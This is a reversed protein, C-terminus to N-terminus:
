RMQPTQLNESAQPPAQSPESKQSNNQNKIFGHQIDNHNYGIVIAATAIVSILWSIINSSIATYWKTRSTIHSRLESAHMNIKDNISSINYSISEEIIQPRAEIIASAAFEQLLRESSGRFAAVMSPQPNRNAGNNEQGSIIEDRVAQKFLAYALLGITDGNETVFNEFARSFKHPIETQQSNNTM